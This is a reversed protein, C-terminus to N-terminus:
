RRATLPRTGACTSFAMAVSGTFRRHGLRGTLRTSAGSATRPEATVSGDPAIRAGALEAVAIRTQNDGITPGVCFVSLTARFARLRTGGGTVGFAVDHARYRYAQWYVRGGVIEPSSATDFTDLQATCTGDPALSTGADNGYPAHALREDAGLAPADSFRVAYDDYHGIDPLPIYMAIRYDPCRFSVPIGAADAPVETGDAPTLAEVPPDGPMARASGALALLLLLALGTLRSM